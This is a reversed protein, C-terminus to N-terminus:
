RANRRNLPRVRSRWCGNSWELVAARADTQPSKALRPLAADDTFLEAPPPLAGADAASRGGRAGVGRFRGPLESSPGRPRRRPGRVPLRRVAPRDHTVGRTSDTAGPEM